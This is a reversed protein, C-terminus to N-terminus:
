SSSFTVTSAGVGTFEEVLSNAPPGGSIVGLTATGGIYSNGRANNMAPQDTLSTGDWHTVTTGNGMFLANTVTGQAQGSTRQNPLSPVVTTWSTGNYEEGTGRPSAAPSTGGYFALCSTQEGALGYYAFGESTSGGSTWTSGDYELTGTGPLGPGGGLIINATQPGVGGMFQNGSPLNTGGTWTSGNFEEVNTVISSPPIFGGIGIGATQPGNNGYSMRNRATGMNGSPSWSTGDYLFTNNSNTGAGDGGGAAWAANQSAGGGTGFNRPVPLATASTFVAATLFVQGKLSNTGLNYWVEGTIPNSPDSARIPINNGNINIYDAM